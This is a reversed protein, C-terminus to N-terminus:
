LNDSVTLIISPIGPHPAVAGSALLQVGTSSVSFMLEVYDNAKLTLFLNVALFVEANNGQIRAQSASNAVDVGNVRFWLYFQEATAVASDLQISTTFNYIGESDVVIRSTPSDITVGKSLDTTNFTIATATNIAAATQTTTDYFQGYRTRKPPMPPPALALGQVVTQLEAVEAQTTGLQAALQADQAANGTEARLLAALQAEQAAKAIEGSTDSAQPAKAWDEGAQAANFLSLFFMYWARHMQGTTPDMIPVYPPTIPTPRADAM